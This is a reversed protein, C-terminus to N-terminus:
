GLGLLYVLDQIQRRVKAQDDGHNILAQVQLEILRKIVALPLNDGVVVCAARPAQARVDAILATIDPQSFAADLIVIDPVRRRFSALLEAPDSFCDIRDGPDLHSTMWARMREDPAGVLFTIARRRAAQPVPEPAAAAPQEAEGIWCDDFRALATKVARTVDFIHPLPKELYADIGLNLTEVASEVSAYGTAMLIRIKRNQRRVERIFDVGSMGPLNKDVVLVDVAAAPDHLTRLGDEGTEAKMVTWGAEEFAIQLVETFAPEDDVILVRVQETM